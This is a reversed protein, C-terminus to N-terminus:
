GGMACLDGTTAIETAALGATDDALVLGRVPALLTV